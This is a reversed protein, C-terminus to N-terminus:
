KYQKLIDECENKGWRPYLASPNMPTHQQLAKNLLIKAKKKDGGWLAPTNYKLWGDLYTARANTTDTLKAKVIYLNASPGYKKGNSMPSIFIKTRYMMSIICYIESLEKKQKNTDILSLATNIQSECLDSFAQLKEAPTKAKGEYNVFGIKANCFAAYYYPLWDKKHVAALRAFDNSLVQYDNVTRASDLKQIQAAMKTSDQAVIASSILLTGMLLKWKTKKM